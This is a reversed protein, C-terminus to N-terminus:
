KEFYVENFPVRFQPGYIGGKDRIGCSIVMNIMASNPLGLAKKVLKSDFGEMPCTDYGNAAMSIMFNQAALAASKQAVIDTDSSLVQRYSPKSFGIVTAMIRKFVGSIGLFDSYLTPIIKTYYNTAMKERKSNRTEQAAFQSELFDLNAKVRKKWLDKRAVIVVFQRATQTATQSLCAKAMASKSEARTIHYFEWLQLNSSTPALAAHELCEKVIKKDLDQDTKFIRVSRRYNIAESVTKETMILNRKLSKKVM